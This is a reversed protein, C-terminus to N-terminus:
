DLLGQFEPAFTKRLSTVVVRRFAFLVTFAAFREAVFEHIGM